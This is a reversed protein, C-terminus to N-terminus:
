GIRRCDGIVDDRWAGRAPAGSPTRQGPPRAAAPDVDPQRDRQHTRQHGGVRVIPLGLVGVGTSRVAVTVRPSTVALAVALPLESDCSAVGTLKWFWPVSVATSTLAPSVTVSPCTSAVM